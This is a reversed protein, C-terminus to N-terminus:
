STAYMVPCAWPRGSCASRGPIRRVPVGRELGSVTRVSLGSRNALEEQSLGADERRQRLWRGPPGNGERSM